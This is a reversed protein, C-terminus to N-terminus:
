LELAPFSYLSSINSIYVEFTIDGKVLLSKFFALKGDKDLDLKRRPPPKEGNKAQDYKFKASVKETQFVGIGGGNTQVVVLVVLFSRSEYM